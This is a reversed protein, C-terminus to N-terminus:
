TDLGVRWREMTEALRGRERMVFSRLAMIAVADFGDLHFENEGEDEDDDAGEEDGPVYLSDNVIPYVENEYKNNVSDKLQPTGFYHVITAGYPAERSRNSGKKYLQVERM